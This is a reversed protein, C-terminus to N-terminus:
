TIQPPPHNCTLHRGNSRRRDRYYNVKKVCDIRICDFIRTQRQHNNNVLHIRLPICCRSHSTFFVSFYFDSYFYYLKINKKICVCVPCFLCLAISAICHMPLFNHDVLEFPCYFFIIRSRAVTSAQSRSTSSLKPRVCADCVPTAYAGHISLCLLMRYIHKKEINTHVNQQIELALCRVCIDFPSDCRSCRCNPKCIEM